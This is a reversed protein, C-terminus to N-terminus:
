RTRSSRRAATRTPHFSPPTSVTLKELHQSCCARFLHISPGVNHQLRPSDPSRWTNSSSHRWHLFQQDCDYIGQRFWPLRFHTLVRAVHLSRTWRYWARPRWELVLFICACLTPTFFQRPKGHYGAKRGVSVSSFGAQESPSNFFRCTLRFMM